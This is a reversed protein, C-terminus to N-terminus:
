RYLYSLVVALLVVLACAPLMQAHMNTQLAHIHTHTYPVHLGDACIDETTPAAYEAVLPLLVGPLPCYAVISARQQEVYAPLQTRLQRSCEWLNVQQPSLKAIFKSPADGLLVMTQLLLTLEADDADVFRLSNWLTVGGPSSEDVSAGGETLLWRVVGLNRKSAALMLITFGVGDCAQSPDAGFEEILCRVIDLLGKAAAIFLAPCETNNPDSMAAGLEKVLYRLLDLCGQNSAITLATRGGKAVQDTKADLEKVLVRMMDLRGNYAAFM